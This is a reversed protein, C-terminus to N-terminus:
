KFNFPAGCNSKNRLEGQNMDEEFECEGMMQDELMRASYLIHSRNKRPFRKEVSKAIIDGKETM